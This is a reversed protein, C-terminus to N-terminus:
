SQLIDYIFSKADPFLSDLEAGLFPLISDPILVTGSVIETFEAKLSSCDDLCRELRSTFINYLDYSCKFRLLSKPEDTIITSKEIALLTSNGYAAILGKVGLKIGGYYRTVVAMINQLSHKKLAGLIPRGATGAPEGADSSHEIVPSEFFRYGWCYHTAKPYRSIIGKLAADFEPRNDVQRLSAIFRSRQVTLEVDISSVISLFKQNPITDSNKSQAM